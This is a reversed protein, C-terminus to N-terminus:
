NKEQERSEKTSNNKAREKLLSIFRKDMDKVLAIKQNIDKLASTEITEVEEVPTIEETAMSTEAVQEVPPKTETEDELTKIIGITLPCFLLGVTM